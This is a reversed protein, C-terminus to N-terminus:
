RFRLDKQSLNSLMYRLLASMSVNYKKAQEHLLHKEAETLRFIINETKAEQPSEYDFLNKM